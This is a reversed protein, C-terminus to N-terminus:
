RNLVMKKTLVDSESTLRCFYIGSPVFSGTNNVGTWQVNHNGARQLGNHIIFIERGL